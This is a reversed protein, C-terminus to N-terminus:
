PWRVQLLLAFGYALAALVLFASGILYILLLPSIRRRRKM